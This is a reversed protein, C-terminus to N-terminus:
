CASHQRLHRCLWVNGECLTDRQRLGLGGRVRGKAFTHLKCPRLEQQDGGLGAKSGCCWGAEQSVSLFVWGAWVLCCIKSRQHHILVINKGVDGWKDRNGYLFRPIEGSGAEEWLVWMRLSQLWRSTSKSFSWDWWFGRIMSHTDLNDQDETIWLCWLFYCHVWAFVPEPIHQNISVLHHGM